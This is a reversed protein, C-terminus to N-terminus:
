EMFDLVITYRNKDFTLDRGYRFEVGLKISKGLVFSIFTGGGVEDYFVPASCASFMAYTERKLGEAGNRSLHQTLGIKVNEFPLQEILSIGGGWQFYDFDRKHPKWLIFNSWGMVGLYDTVYGAQVVPTLFDLGGGLKFNGIRQQFAGGFDVVWESSSYSYDKEKADAPVRLKRADKDPKGLIHYSGYFNFNGDDNMFASASPPRIVSIGCGTLMAALVCFLIKAFDLSRM